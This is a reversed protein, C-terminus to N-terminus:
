PASSTTSSINYISAAWRNSCCRRLLTELPYVLFSFGLPALWLFSLGLPFPVLGYPWLLLCGVAALPVIMAIMKGYQKLLIIINNINTITAINHHHHHHHYFCFSTPAKQKSLSLFWDRSQVSRWARVPAGHM